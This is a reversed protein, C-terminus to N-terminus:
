LPAQDGARGALTEMVMWTNVFRQQGEAANYKDMSEIPMRLIGELVIFRQEKPWAFEPVVQLFASYHCKTVIRAYGNHCLLTKHPNM